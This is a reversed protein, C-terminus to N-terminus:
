RPATGAARIRRELELAVDEDARRRIEQQREAERRVEADAAVAAAVGGDNRVTAQLQLTAVGAQARYAAASAANAETQARLREMDLRQATPDFAQASAAGGFLSAAAAILM